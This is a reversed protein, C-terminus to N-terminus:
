KKLEKTALQDCYVNMKEEWTLDELKKTRDQHGKVHHLEHSIPSLKQLTHLIQMELDMESKMYERASIPKNKKGKTIRLILSESDTVQTIVLEHHIDFFQKLKHLYHLPAFMGTAEPRFSGLKDGNVKGFISLLIRKDSAIVSAFSGAKTDAGGDSCIHLKGGTHIRNLLEDIDMHLISPMTYNDWAQPTQIYESWRRPQTELRAPFM